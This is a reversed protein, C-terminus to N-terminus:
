LRGGRGWVRARPRDTRRRGWVIRGGRRSGLSWRNLPIFWSLTPGLLILSLRHLELSPLSSIWCVGALSSPQQTPALGIPQLPHNSIPYARIRMEKRRGQYINHQFLSTVSIHHKRFDNVGQGTAQSVDSSSAVVLAHGLFHPEHSVSCPGM